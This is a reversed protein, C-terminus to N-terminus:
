GRADIVVEQAACGDAAVRLTIRGAGTPRVVSLARGDFTTCTSGTFGEESAPDASGLAQLVGPGDVEVAVRRDASTYLEGASDVLELTVYALDRHDAAIVARDVRADLVVEGKASRLSSRGSEEGERWAVAQLLGPEYVTEFRSTYREPAGSPRRGLSRGNMLLEVEDADAYVEVVVPAGEDVAWTWSSVSDSWTWPTGARSRGTTSRGSSRWM